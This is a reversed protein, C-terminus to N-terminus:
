VHKEEIWQKLKLKRCGLLALIVIGRRGKGGVVGHPPPNRGDAQVVGQKWEEYDDGTM